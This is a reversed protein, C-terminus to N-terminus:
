DVLLEFSIENNYVLLYSLVYYHRDVSAPLLCPAQKHAYVVKSYVSVFRMSFFINVNRPPPTSGTFGGKFVATVLHHIHILWSM